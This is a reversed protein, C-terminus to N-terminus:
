FLDINTVTETKVPRRVDEVWAVSHAETPIEFPLVQHIEVSSLDLRLAPARYDEDSQAFEKSSIGTEEMKQEEEVEVVVCADMEGGDPYLRREHFKRKWTSNYKSPQVRAAKHFM